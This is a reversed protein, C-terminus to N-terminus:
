SLDVKRWSDKEKDYGWVYLGIQAKRLRGLAELGAIKRVRSSVNSRSTVQILAQNGDPDIAWLDFGGWADKRWTRNGARMWREVVEVAWGDAELARIAHTQPQLKAM